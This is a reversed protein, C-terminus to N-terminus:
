NYVTVTFSFSVPCPYLSLFLAVYKTSIFGMIYEGLRLEKRRVNTHGQVVEVVSRERMDAFNITFEQGNEEFTVDEEKNGFATEIKANADVSYPTFAEDTQYEWQADKAISEAKTREHKAETIKLLMDHIAQTAELVDDSLGEVTITCNDKEVNIRCDLQQELVSINSMHSEDIDFISEKAAIEQLVCKDTMIDNIARIANALSKQNGGYVHLNLQSSGSHETKIQKKLYKRVNKAGRRVVKWFSKKSYAYKRMADVFDIIMDDHFVVIRILQISKPQTKSFKRTASLMFDACDKSSLGLIGTGLDPFSISKLEHTEATKLCAVINSQFTKQKKSNNSCVVLNGVQLHNTPFVVCHGPKISLEHRLRYREREIAAGDSKMVAAWAPGQDDFDLIPNSFMGIANTKEETIDGKEVQVTVKGMKIEYLKPKRTKVQPAQISVVSDRQTSQGNSMTNTASDDSPKKGIPKPIHPVQNRKPSTVNSNTSNSSLNQRIASRRRQNLEDQFTQM